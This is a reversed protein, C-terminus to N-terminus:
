CGTAAQGEDVIALTLNSPSEWYSELNERKEDQEAYDPEKRLRRSPKGFHASVFFCPIDQAPEAAIVRFTNLCGIGLEKIDLVDGSKFYGNRM